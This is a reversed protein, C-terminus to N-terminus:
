YMGTSSYGSDYHDLEECVSKKSACCLHGIWDVQYKIDGWAGEVGACTGKDLAEKVGKHDGPNWWKMEDKCTGGQFYGGLLECSAKSQCNCWGWEEKCDPTADCTEKPPNTASLDCYAWAYADPLFEAESKCPTMPQVNHECMTSPYDTCCMMAPYAVMDKFSSESSM